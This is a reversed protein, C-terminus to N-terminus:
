NSRAKTVAANSNEADEEHSGIGAMARFGGAM